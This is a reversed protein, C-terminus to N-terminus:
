GCNKLLYYNYGKILADKSAKMIDDSAGSTSWTSGGAKFEIFVEVIAATAKEQNLIRVRYNTLQLKEANFKKSLAKRLAVDLSHVPGVGEAIEHFTEGNIRVKVETKADGGSSVGTEYSVLDFLGKKGDIKESLLLFLEADTTVGGRNMEGMIERVAPQEKALRYGHRRAADIVGARGAQESLSFLRTNGVDEPNMHEYARPTKLMADIHVGGKHSFANTGVFPKNRALSFGTMRVIYRSLRVLDKMEVGPQLGLKIGAVPLFECWDLNGCREGLGNVTGQVHAVGNKMASLTSMVAMGTDNHMHLGLETGSRKRVDQVIAEVEWPMTGGNTDCLVLTEAGKAADLAALAYDPNAKYGDFFHEADFFVRLGQSKLYDITGSIMSLNQGPSIKLVDKVHLDWTKGFITVVDAQTRVLDDIRSDKEPRRSTMGFAATKAKLGLGRVEEFYQRDVPNSSPWGAEIYHFGFDSLKRSIALKDELSFKLGRTQAGDRLTTDYLVLRKVTKPSVPNLESWSGANV